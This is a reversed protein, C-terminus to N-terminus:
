ESDPQHHQPDLHALDPLDGVRLRLQNRIILEVLGPQEAQPIGFRVTADRIEAAAFHIQQVPISPFEVALRECVDVVSRVTEGETAM